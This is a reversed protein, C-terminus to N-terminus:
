ACHTEEVKEAVVRGAAVEDVVHIGIAFVVLGLEAMLKNSTCSPKFSHPSILLMALPLAFRLAHTQTRMGHMMDLRM